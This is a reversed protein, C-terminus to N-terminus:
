YLYGVAEFQRCEDEYVPNSTAIEAPSYYNVAIVAPHSDKLAFNEDIETAKLRKLRPYIQIAHTIRLYTIKIAAMRMCETWIRTRFQSKRRSLSLISLYNKLM